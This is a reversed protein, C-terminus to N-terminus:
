GPSSILVQIEEEQTSGQEWPRRYVFRLHAQGPRLAVFRFAQVASGGVVGPTITQWGSGALEVLQVDQESPTFQWTYGGTPTGELRVVFPEGPGVEIPLSAEM